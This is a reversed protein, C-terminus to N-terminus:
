KFSNALLYQVQPYDTRPTNLHESTSEEIGVVIDAAFSLWFEGGNPRFGAGFDIDWCGGEASMALKQIRSRCMMCGTRVSIKSGKLFWVMKWKLLLQLAYTLFRKSIEGWSDFGKLTIITFGSAFARKPPYHTLLSGVLEARQRLEKYAVLLYFLWTCTTCGLFIRRQNRKGDRFRRKFRIEKPLDLWWSTPYNYMSNYLFVGSPSPQSSEDHRVRDHCSYSGPLLEDGTHKPNWHARAWPLDWHESYLFKNSTNRCHICLKDCVVICILHGQAMQDWKSLPAYRLVEPSRTM